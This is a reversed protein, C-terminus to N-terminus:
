AAVGEFRTREEVLRPAADAILVRLFAVSSLGERLSALSSALEGRMVADSLDLYYGDDAAADPLDADAGFLFRMKLVGTGQDIEAWMAIASHGVCSGGLADYALVDTLVADLSSHVFDSMAELIQDLDVNKKSPASM